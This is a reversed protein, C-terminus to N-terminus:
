RDALAPLAMVRSRWAILCATLANALGFYAPYMMLGFDLSGVAAIALGGSLAALVFTSLTESQPDRWTKPLMLLAAALDAVIV